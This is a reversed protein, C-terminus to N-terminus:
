TYFIARHARRGKRPSLTDAEAPVGSPGVPGTADLKDAAEKMWSPVEHELKSETPLRADADSRSDSNCLKWLMLGIVSSIVVLRLAWDNAGDM